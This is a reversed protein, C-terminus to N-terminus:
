RKSNINKLHSEMIAVLEQRAILGSHEFMIHGNHYLVIYPVSAMSLNRMLRKSADANVKEVRIREHYEVKLSDIM